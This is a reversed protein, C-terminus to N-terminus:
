LSYVLESKFEDVQKQWINFLAPQFPEPIFKWCDEKPDPEFPNFRSKALEKIKEKYGVFEDFLEGIIKIGGLGIETWSVTFTGVEENVLRRVSPHTKTDYDAVVKFFRFMILGDVPSLFTGHALPHFVVGRERKSVHPKLHLTILLENEEKFNWYDNPPNEDYLTTIGDERKDLKFGNKKLAELFEGELKYSGLTKTYSITHPKTEFCELEIGLYDVAERVLDEEVLMIKNWDDKEM